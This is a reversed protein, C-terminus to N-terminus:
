DPTTWDLQQSQNLLYDHSGEYANDKRYKDGGQDNLGSTNGSREGITRWVTLRFFSRGRLWLAQLAEPGSKM